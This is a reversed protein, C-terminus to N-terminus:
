QEEDKLSESAAQGAVAPLAPRMFDGMFNELAIMKPDIKGSGFAAVRAQRRVAQTDVEGITRGLDDVFRDGLFHLAKGPPTRTLWRTHAGILGAITSQLLNTNWGAHTLGGLAAIPLAHGAIWKSTGSRLAPGLMRALPGAIAGEVAGKFPQNPDAVMGSLGGTIAPTAGYEIAAKVRKRVSTGPISYFRPGIVKGAIKGLSSTLGEEIGLVSLATPAFESVNRVGSQFMSENAPPVVFQKLKEGFKRREEQRKQFAEDGPLQRALPAGLEGLNLVDQGLGRSISKATESVIGGESSPASTESEPPKFPTKAIENPDGGRARIMDDLSAM